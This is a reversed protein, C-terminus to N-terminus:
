EGGIRIVARGMVQRGELRRHLDPVQELEVQESIPVTWDGSVIRNVIQRNVDGSDDSEIQTLTMGGVSFSGSILRPIPVPEPYSGATAGIYVIRGLPAVLDYNRRANPGGNGDIIVNFSEGQAAARAQQPWDPQLYDIAPCGTLQEAFELKAAGGALGFPLAGADRAMQLLMIGIAGAASHVLVRDGAQVRACLHLAHWATFSAGRYACGTRLDIREDLPLLLDAPACSYDAYGGFTSRSLVPRGVMAQDVGPGVADIVGSHELGAILPYSVPMWDLRERRVMTDVPNMGVWAVKVRAEGPGPEPVPVERLQLAEPGGPEDIVLARMTTATM